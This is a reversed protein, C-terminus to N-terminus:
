KGGVRMADMMDANGMNPKTQLHGEGQMRKPPSKVDLMKGEAAIPRGKAMGSPFFLSAPYPEWHGTAPYCQIRRVLGKQQHVALFPKSVCLLCCFCTDPFDILFDDVVM